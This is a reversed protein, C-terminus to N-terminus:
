LIQKFVLISRPTKKFFSFASTTTFYFSRGSSDFFIKLFVTHRSSSLNKALSFSKRFFSAKYSSFYKETCSMCLYSICVYRKHYSLSQINLLYHLPFTIRKRVSDSFYKVSHNIRIEMKAEANSITIDRVCAAYIIRNHIYSRGPIM